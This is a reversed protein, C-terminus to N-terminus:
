RRVPVQVTVRRAELYIRVFDRWSMRSQLRELVPTADLGQPFLLTLARRLGRQEPVCKVSIAFAYCVCLESPDYTSTRVTGTAKQLSAEVEMMRLQKRKKLPELAWADYVQFARFLQRGSLPVSAQGALSWFWEKAHRLGFRQPRCRFRAVIPVHDKRGLM